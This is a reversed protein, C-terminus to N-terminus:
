ILLVDFRQFMSISRVCDTEDLNVEKEFETGKNPICQSRGMAKGQLKLRKQFSSKVFDKKCRMLEIECLEMLLKSDMVQGM